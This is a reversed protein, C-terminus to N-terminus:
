WKVIVQELELDINKQKKVEKKVLDILEIIDRSSANKLNIIFNAHKLSVMADNVKLGKLGCVDIIHGAADTSPNKFVSGANKYELPQMEKRKQLNAKIREWAEEKDGSQIKITAGLVIINSNNKFETQRTSYKINNKNITKIMGDELVTVSLVDDYIEKKFSGANGVLAGGLTGPIGYLPALNVYNLDILKKILENLNIGAEAYVFDGDIQWKNLNDLKIIAGNFDEDPLIVNSGSGFIYWAINQKKLDVLINQLELYSRPKILYKAKKGIGYTNYKKLDIDYEIEWNQM